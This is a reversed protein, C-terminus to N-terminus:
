SDATTQVPSHDPAELSAFYTYLATLEEDTMSKTIALPMFTENIDAKGPREGTRLAREFEEFDWRGTAVLSPAAMMGPPGPPELMGGMDDGHCYACVSALYEGYEATPGPEPMDARAPESRVEFALDEKMTAAMVRGVPKFETPPLEHDVPEITQLYAILAEADRDAIGHFAASPMILVSRGNPKVGHRITRDWDEATYHAGVGGAGSTLNAAVIRFPPADVLVNGSFDPGHCDNCGYINALHAGRALQASDGRVDLAALTPIEYMRDVNQGGVVYMVGAIALVALLAGGLVLGGWKIVKNM